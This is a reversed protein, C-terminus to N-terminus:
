LVTSHCTKRPVTDACTGQQLRVLSAYGYASSSGPSDPGNFSHRHIEEAPVRHVYVVTAKQAYIGGRM